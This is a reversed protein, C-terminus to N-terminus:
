HDADVEHPPAPSGAVGGDDVAAADPRIRRYAALIATAAMVALVPDLALRFRQNGNSLAATVVVAVALAAVPTLEARRRVLIVTGPVALALVIMHYGWGFIQWGEDRTEVAELRAQDVPAWLGWSRLVRASAVLPLRAPQSLAYDLARERAESAWALESESQARPTGCTPDWAGLLPGYFTSRCNAGQLMGGSNTSVLVTSDMRISSYAVWPILVGATVALTTAALAVRRAPSGSTVKWGLAGALIPALFLVDARTLAALGVVLGVLAFRAVSPDALARYSLLMAATVLAVYLSESMVSGDAAILMPSGAVLVATVLGTRPGAIRRGLLGALLVTISGLLAGVVQLQTTTTLGLRNAGAVLIPWLPPFTATPEGLFREYFAAPDIYGLGSELLGGELGYWQADFGLTLGTGIAAVYAIRAALGGVVIIALWHGFGLRRRWATM